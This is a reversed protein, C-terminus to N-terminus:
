DTIPKAPRRPIKSAESAVELVELIADVQAVYEQARDSTVEDAGGHAVLNRLLTIGEIASQTGPSILGRARADQALAAATGALPPGSGFNLGTLEQLQRYVLDHALLVSTGPDSVVLQKLTVAKFREGVGSEANQGDSPRAVPPLEAVNAKVEAIVQTWTAKLPGVELREMPRALLAQIQRRFVLGLILVVAPWALGQIVAAIFSLWSM